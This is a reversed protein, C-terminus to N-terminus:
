KGSGTKTVKEVKWDDRHKVLEITYSIGTGMRKISNVTVKDSSTKSLLVGLALDKKGYIFDEPIQQVSANYKQAVRQFM